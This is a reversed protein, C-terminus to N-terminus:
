FANVESGRQAATCLLDFVYTAQSRFCIIRLADPRDVWIAAPVQAIRSRRFMPAQFKGPAFDIPALKALVERAYPGSVLFSARADSVNVVLAHQNGLAAWAKELTNDVDAYPCLVLLEDPSMWFVGFDGDTMAEGQGPVDLSVAAKVAKKIGTGGLDGRLTIMGQLPCESVQAIGDEFRVGDLASRPESM